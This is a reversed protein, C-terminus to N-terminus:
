SCTPRPTPRGTPRPTPRGEVGGGGCLAASVDRKKTGVNRKARSSNVGRSASAPGKVTKGLVCEGFGCARRAIRTGPPRPAGAAVGSGASFERYDQTELVHM